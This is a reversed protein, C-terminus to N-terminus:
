LFTFLHSHIGLLAGVISWSISGDLDLQHVLLPKATIWLLMFSEFASADASLGAWFPHTSAFAADIFNGTALEGLLRKELLSLKSSEGPLTRSLKTVNKHTREDKKLEHAEWRGKLLSQKLKSSIHM